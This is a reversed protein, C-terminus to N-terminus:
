SAAAVDAEYPKHDVLALLDEELPCQSMRWSMSDTPPHGVMKGSPWVM